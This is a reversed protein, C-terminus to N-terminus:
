ELLDKVSRVRNEMTKLVIAARAIATSETEGAFRKMSIRVAAVPDGNRDHLPMTVTYVQVGKGTYVVDRAMVESEAAGAAEGLDKAEKAAVVCLKAPNGTRAFLKLGALRPYRHLADRVLLTALNELPSFSVRADAFYSVSDSKTWFGIKGRNFDYDTITPMPEKGDLLCRIQSGKCELTLEHWVGKAIPIDPGIPASRQGDVFKYFKFPNGLASARVVYYNKEDQIRFAVGAMQELAGAATKFKTTFTFDRFVENTFILLPFHEDISARATQALVRQRPANSLAPSWRPLASPAEDEVIRWDGPQGDGSITSLFGPPAQNTAMKDFNFNLDAAMAPGGAALVLMWVAPFLLSTLGLPPGGAITRDAHPTAGIGPSLTLRTLIMPGSRLLVLGRSLDKDLVRAAVWEAQCFPLGPGALQVPAPGLSAFM